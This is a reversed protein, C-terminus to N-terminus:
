DSTREPENTVGMTTSLTLPDRTFYLVDDHEVSNFLEKETLTVPGTKKLIAAVLREWGMNELEM